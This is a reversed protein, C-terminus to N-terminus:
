KWTRRIPHAETNFVVKGFPLAQEPAFLLYLYKLTEAFFFSEMRDSKEKTVVDELMAYAEDTRCYRVLSNFFTEGMQLYRDDHTFHHLYYASEIIEPRLYYRKSTPSMTTYDIEEPEIGYLNWMKFCSAELTQAREVDGSLCLVAPFFAELSGFTTGIRRGTEMDVQGYWLGGHSTDAVYKNIAKISQEWM